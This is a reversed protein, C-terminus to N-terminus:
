RVKAVEAEQAFAAYKGRAVSLYSGARGAIWGANRAVPLLDKPGARELATPASFILM